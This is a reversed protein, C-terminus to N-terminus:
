ARGETEEHIPEGRLMGRLGLLGRRMRAKVTGLPVGLRESLASQTMGGYYALVLVERQDRGLDLLAARVSADRLRDVLVDAPDPEGGAVNLLADDGVTPRQARRVNLCRHHVSTLFWARFSGRSPDFSGPKDILAVFADHVVDMAGTAGVLHCALSYAKTSHRDYLEALASRDGRGVRSVLSADIQSDHEGPDYRGPDDTTGSGGRLISRPGIDSSDEIPGALSTYGTM